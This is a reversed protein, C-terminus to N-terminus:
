LELHVNIEEKTAPNRFYLLYSGSPVWIEYLITDCKPDTEDLIYSFFSIDDDNYDYLQGDLQDIIYEGDSRLLCFYAKKSVLLRLDRKRDPNADPVFPEEVYSFEVMESLPRETFVITYSEDRMIPAWEGTSLDKMCLLIHDGEALPKTIRATIEDTACSQNPGFEMSFEPSIVEKLADTKDYLAYRFDLTFSGISSNWVADLLMFDKGVEFDGPLPLCYYSSMVPEPENGQDPMVQCVMGQYYNFVLLDEEHGEIPALTYFDAFAGRRDHGKRWSSSGSWGYNISFYRENFGDLVFAHGGNEEFGSYLVPRNAQIEDRILQEWQEEKVVSRDYIRIRKDYGFYDAMKLASYALSAGSGGPYFSMHSMVAVDYLLRAIQAAEETTCNQYDDPMKDWNYEHGLSIGDVHYTVGEMTYDYSPLDGTGANPWKHYKMVISIATAVCGIPPKEGNIEAVLDNFPHWQDWKATKLQVTNKPDLGASTQISASPWHQARAYEIINTYWQFMDRMAEPMEEDPFFGGTSYGLVPRAVDDGSVVVYGGEERGFVYMAPANSAKTAVEPFTCVLKFDDPRVAAAKTSVELSSFFAAARQRAQEQTVVDAYIWQGVLLALFTLIMKKMKM